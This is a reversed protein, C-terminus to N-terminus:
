RSMFVEAAFLPEVAELVWGKNWHVRVQVKTKGFLVFGTAVGGNTPLPGQQGLGQEYIIQFLAFLSIPSKEPTKAVEKSLDRVDVENKLSPIFTYDTPLQSLLKGFHPNISSITIGDGNGVVFVSHPNFAGKPPRIKITNM